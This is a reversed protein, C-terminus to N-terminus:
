HTFIIFCNSIIWSSAWCFYLSVDRWWSLPLGLFYSLLVFIWLIHRILLRSVKTGSLIPPQFEFNITFKFNLNLYYFRWSSEFEWFMGSIVTFHCRFSRLLTQTQFWEYKSGPVGAAWLHSRWIDQNTWCVTWFEINNQKIVSFLINKLPNLSSEFLSHNIVWQSSLEYWSCICQQGTQFLYPIKCWM